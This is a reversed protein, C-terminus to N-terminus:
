FGRNPIENNITSQECRRRRRVENVGNAIHFNAYSPKETVLPPVQLFSPHLWMFILLSINLLFENRIKADKAVEATSNAPPTPQSCSGPVDLCCPATIPPAPPATAPAAM